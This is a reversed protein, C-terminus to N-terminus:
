MLPLPSVNGPFMARAAAKQAELRKKLTSRGSSSDMQAVLKAFRGQLEAVYAERMTGLADDAVKGDVLAALYTARAPTLTGFAKAKVKAAILDRIKVNVDKPATPLKTKLLEAHLGCRNKVFLDKEDDILRIAEVTRLTLYGRKLLHFTMARDHESRIPLQFVDVEGNPDPGQSIGAFEAGDRDLFLELPVADGNSTYNMETECFVSKLMLPLGGPASGELTMQGFGTKKMDGDIWVKIAEKMIVELENAFSSRGTTSAVAEDVVLKTEGTLKGKPLTKRVSVWNSWPHGLENMLPGGNAHCTFCEGTKEKSAASAGSATMEFRQIKGAPTRIIRVMKGPKGTGNSFFVYFNYTGTRNDLAMVELPTFLMPDGKAANPADPASILAAMLEFSKRISEPNAPTTNCGTIVARPMLGTDFKQEGTARSSEEEVIFIEKSDVRVCHRGVKFLKEYAQFTGPVLDPRGKLVKSVRDDGFVSMTEKLEQDEGVDVDGSTCGVLALLSGVACGRSFRASVQGM